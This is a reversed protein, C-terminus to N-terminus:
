PDMLSRRSEFLDIRKYAAQAKIQVTQALHPEISFLRVNQWLEACSRPSTHFGHPVVDLGVDRMLKSLTM